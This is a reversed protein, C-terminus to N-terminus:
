KADLNQNLDVNAVISARRVEEGNGYGVEKEM